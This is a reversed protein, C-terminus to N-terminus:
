SQWHRGRAGVSQSRRTDGHSDYKKNRNCSLYYASEATDNGDKDKLFPPGWLRTDDGAGPKEIKVIEAGMDGLIQTCSPGALVRSLDVVRIGQLAGTM